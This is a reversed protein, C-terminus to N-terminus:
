SRIRKWIEVVAALWSDPNLLGKAAAWGIVGLIPKVAAKKMWVWVIPGLSRIAQTCYWFNARRAGFKQHILKYREELDGVIADYNKPDLFLYFLFQVNLLPHSTAKRASGPKVDWAGSRYKSRMWFGIATGVIFVPGITFMLAIGAVRQMTAQITV